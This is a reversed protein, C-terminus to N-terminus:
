IWAPQNNGGETQTYPAWVLSVLDIKIDTSKARVLLTELEDDSADYTEDLEVLEMEFAESLELLETKVSALLEEAHDVDGSEKRTRQARKIASGMRSASTSSIAKRGLFAGLIATGFSIATDFKSQKAQAAQTEVKQEARQLRRELVTVKADYKKRLKGSAVDRKEHAVIQLRSRFDGESEDINSVMKYTKSKFLNLTQETRLWTKFRSEFKKYNALKTAAKPLDGYVSDDMGQKELDSAVIEQFESANWDVAIAGENVDTLFCFEKGTNVKYRSSQYTVRALGILQPHYHVPKDGSFCPLYFQKIKPPLVPRVSNTREVLKRSQSNNTAQLVMSAKRTAMLRKIQDRTLPGSLYSLVWRTSFVRSADEHVNHLLFKRKGLGALTREMKGKDFAKGGSAGELGEMVRAKDRETQLRGIFWTGTNSLGKYDLDVPNQTALVLGLGYARAQKLLTLFLVKSAPNATPPMYGFIEDMYLIARLSGTGPQRRMWGIIENLLMTVIFMRETDSLHAISVVSLRPKGSDSYFLRQADLSQGQMWVEFGPAALLNNLRMALAMRDKAPFFSDLDVVGIREMPPNQISAILAPIDLDLGEDWRNKLLNAILIHERSTLPDANLDLLTLISTATSQIRERYLDSDERLEVPPASFTKLVSIPQGATSGPTYIAMDASDALKKIRQKDQGWKALGTEWLRAQDGAYQAVTKGENAAETPNVWPEFDAGDLNPFNLMVNGLDGKPDIAIVPIKDIVAEELLGIGLGTKGSGTMGIIVAHTTLDKSKYLVLDEDQKDIDLDYEKGLYFAGLKEYDSM